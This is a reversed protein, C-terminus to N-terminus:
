RDATTLKEGEVVTALYERDRRAATEFETEDTVFEIEVYGDFGANEFAELVTHVDFYAEDLPAQDPWPDGPGPAGQLHVNNSLPALERASALIEEAPLDFRPQWNLRVNERDVAEVLLRAGDRANTLTGAHREVTVELGREAARNSLDRLDEVVGNWHEQTFEEYEQEGAWVRILSADLESAVDLETEAREEYDPTGPRLYSGYVPIDLNRDAATERISALRGSSRDGVHDRGWIEVGDYGSAAAVSLVDEVSDDKSAITCLGFKM